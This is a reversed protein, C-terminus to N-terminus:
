WGRAIRIWSIGVYKSPDLHELDEFLKKAEEDKKLRRISAVGLLDANNFLRLINPSVGGKNTVGRMEAVKNRAIDTAIYIASEETNRPINRAASEYLALLLIDTNVEMEDIRELIAKKLDPDDVKTSIMSKLEEMEEIRGALKELEDM